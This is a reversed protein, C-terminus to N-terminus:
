NSHKEDNNEELNEKIIKKDAFKQMKTIAKLVRMGEQKLLYGSMNDVASNYKILTHTLHRNISQNFIETQTMGSYKDMEKAILELNSTLNHKYQFNM